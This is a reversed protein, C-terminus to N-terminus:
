SSFTFPLFHSSLGIGALLWMKGLHMLLMDTVSEHRNRRGAALRHGASSKGRGQRYYHAPSEIRKNKM